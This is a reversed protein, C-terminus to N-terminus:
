VIENEALNAWASPAEGAVECGALMCDYPKLSHSAAHLFMPHLDWLMALEDADEGDDPIPRPVLKLVVLGNM